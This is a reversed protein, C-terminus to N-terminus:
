ATRRTKQKLRVAVLIKGDRTVRPECIVTAGPPFEWTELNPDYDKPKDLLYSGDALRRAPVPRWVPVGEDLLAVHIVESM